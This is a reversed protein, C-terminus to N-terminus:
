TTVLLNRMSPLVINAHRPPTQEQLALGPLHQVLTSVAIECELRALRAGLCYHIGSGFAISLTTDRTIDFKNPDAFVAPDRNAAAVFGIVPQGARVLADGLVVDEIPKRAAASHVSGNFRLSESVAGSILQPYRRLLVLQDDHTLLDFITNGIQAVTTGHGAFVIQVCLSLLEEGTLRGTHYADLLVSVVGPQSRDHGTVVYDFYELLKDGADGAQRMASPDKRLDFGRGFASIWEPLQPDIEDAAIGLVACIVAISVPVAYDEIVDFAAAAALADDILRSAIHATLARYRQTAGPTFGAALLARM